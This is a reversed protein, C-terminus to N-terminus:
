VREEQRQLKADAAAKQDLERQAKAEGALKAKEEAERIPKQIREMTRNITEKHTIIVVRQSRLAVDDLNDDSQGLVRDMTADSLTGTRIVEQVFEPWNAKCDQIVQDSVKEECLEMTAEFSLPFVGLRGWEKVIEYSTLSPLIVNFLLALAEMYRARKKKVFYHAFVSDLDKTMEAVFRQYQVMTLKNLYHQPKKIMKFLPLRDPISTKQTLNVHTKVQVTRKAKQNALYHSNELDELHEHAGGDEFDVFSEGPQLNGQKEQLTKELVEVRFMKSLVKTDAKNYIVILCPQSGVFLSNYKRYKIVVPKGAEVKQSRFGLVLPLKEGAGNCGFIFNYSQLM